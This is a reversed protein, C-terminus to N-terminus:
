RMADTHAIRGRMADDADSYRHPSDADCRNGSRIGINCAIRLNDAPMAQVETTVGNRFNVGSLGTRSDSGVGLGVELELAVNLGLQVRCRNTPSTARLRVRGLNFVVDIRQVRRESASEGGSNAKSMGEFGFTTSM